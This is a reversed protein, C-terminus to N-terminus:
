LLKTIEAGGYDPDIKPWELKWELKCYTWLGSLGSRKLFLLTKVAPHTEITLQSLRRGKCESCCDHSECPVIVGQPM